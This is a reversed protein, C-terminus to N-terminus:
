VVYNLERTVLRAAELESHYKSSCKTILKIDPSIERNAMFDRLKSRKYVDISISSKNLADKDVAVFQSEMNKAILLMGARDIIVHNDMLSELVSFDNKNIGCTGRLCKM